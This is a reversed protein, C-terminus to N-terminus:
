VDVYRCRFGAHLNAASTGAAQDGVTVVYLAGEEIDGIAGTGADKFTVPLGKLNLFMDAAFNSATTPTGANGICQYRMRKLVRFRASNNDNNFSYANVTNLIDTINPMSGTPRKDYVILVVGAAFATASASGVTGRVQLSKLQIRKGIRQSSSAGQPVANILTISGTTDMAHNGSAIDVFGTERRIPRPANYAPGRKISRVGRGPKSGARKKFTRTKVFNRQAM